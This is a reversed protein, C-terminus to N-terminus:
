LEQPVRHTHKLQKAASPDSQELIKLGKGFKCKAIFLCIRYIMRLFFPQDYINLYPLAYKQIEKRKVFVIMTYLILINTMFYNQRNDIGGNPLAEQIMTEQYEFAARMMMLTDIDMVFVGKQNMFSGKRQVYHYFRQPMTVITNANMFVKFITCVDEFMRWNASFEVGKFVSARFLKGWPYNNVKTNKLLLKLAQLRDLVQYSPARRCFFGFRFEMRYFCQVIDANEKQMVAMMREVMDSDIYDDSDVFLYYGGHAHEIGYNRAASVGGNKKEYYHFRADQQCFHECLMGSHDTSGDNVLIVEFPQYTQAALSCLCRQIYNEVNYVPVIISVLEENM